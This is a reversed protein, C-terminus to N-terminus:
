ETHSVCICADVNSLSFKLYQRAPARSPSVVDRRCRAAKECQHSRTRVKNVNISAADAFGFLSHDTFVIQSRAPPRARPLLKHARVAAGGVGGAGSGPRGRVKRGLVKGQLLCEHMLPSTAAHGHVITM